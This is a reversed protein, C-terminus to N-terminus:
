AKAWFYKTCPMVRDPNFPYGASWTKRKFTEFRYPPTGRYLKKRFYHRRAENGTNTRRCIEYYNGCSSIEILLSGSGSDGAEVITQFIRGRTDIRRELITFPGESRVSRTCSDYRVLSGDARWTVEEYPHFLGDYESHIWTGVLAEFGRDEQRSDAFAPSSVAAAFLLVAVFWPNPLGAAGNRRKRSSM